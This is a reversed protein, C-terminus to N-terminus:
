HTWCYNSQHSVNLNSYIYIMSDSLLYSLWLLWSKCVWKTHYYLNMAIWSMHSFLSFPIFLHFLWEEWCKQKQLLESQIISICDCVKSCNSILIATCKIPSAMLTSIFLITFSLNKVGGTFWLRQKVKWEIKHKM